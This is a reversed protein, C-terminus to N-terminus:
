PLCSKNPLAFQERLSNNSPKTAMLISDLVCVVDAVIHNCVITCM